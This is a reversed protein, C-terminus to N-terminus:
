NRNRPEVWPVRILRFFQEEERVEQPEGNHYFVGKDGKFGLSSWRSALRKSFEVSGTRLAMQYGWSEPLVMFIDVEIPDDGPLVHRTYKGTPEGKVKTWGNIIDRFYRNAVLEKKPNHEMSGFLGAQVPEKKLVLEKTPICVIEIDNVEPCERRISGAIEIKVCHPELLEVVRDAYKKAKCYEM